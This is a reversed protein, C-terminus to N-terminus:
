CVHEGPFLLSFSNLITILQSLHLSDKAATWDEIKYMRPVLDDFNIM